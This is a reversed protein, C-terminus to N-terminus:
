KVCEPSICIEYVIDQYEYKIISSMEKHLFKHLSSHWRSIISIFSILLHLYTASGYAPKVGITPAPELVNPRWAGPLHPSLWHHGPCRLTCKDMMTEKTSIEKAAKMAITVPKRSKRNEINFNWEIFCINQQFILKQLKMCYIEPQMEFTMTFM